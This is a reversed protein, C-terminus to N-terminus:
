DVVCLQGRYERRYLIPFGAGDVKIEAASFEVISRFIQFREADCAIHQVFVVAAGFLICASCCCCLFSLCVCDGDGVHQVHDTLLTASIFDEAVCKVCYLRVARDIDSNIFTSCLVAADAPECLKFGFYLTVAALFFYRGAPLFVPECGRINWFHARKESVDGDLVFDDNCSLRLLVFERGGATDIVHKCVRCSASPVRRTVAVGDCLLWHRDGVNDALGPVVEAERDGRAMDASLLVETEVEAVRVADARLNCVVKRSDRVFEAVM